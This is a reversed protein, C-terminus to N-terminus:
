AHRTRRSAKKLSRDKPSPVFIERGNRAGASGSASTTSGVPAPIRKGTPEVTVNSRLRHKRGGHKTCRHEIASHHTRKSHLAKSRLPQLIHRPLLDVLPKLEEPLDRVKFM